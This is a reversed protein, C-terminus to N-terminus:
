IDIWSENNLIHYITSRGVNYKRSLQSINLSEKNEKIEKALVTNLVTQRSNRAQELRTAWRVNGPEYDGNNNIREITYEKSPAAGIYDYFAKFDNIWKSYMTIGRGGYYKYDQSKKNFCRRKIGSWADYEKNIKNRRSFGHKVRKEISNLNNNRMTEKVICGCSKQQKLRTTALIKITGCDCMCEWYANGNKRYLYKKVTLKNFVKNTIDKFHPIYEKKLCGCSKVQGKLLDLSVANKYNGCSCICKWYSMKRKLGIRSIVTLRSFVQGTLDKIKNPM